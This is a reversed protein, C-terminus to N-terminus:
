ARIELGGNDRAERDHARRSIVESVHFIVPTPEGTAHCSKIRFRLSHQKIIWGEGAPFLTQRFVGKLAPTSFKWGRRLFKDLCRGRNRPEQPRHYQTMQGHNANSLLHFTSPVSRLSPLKNTRRRNRIM